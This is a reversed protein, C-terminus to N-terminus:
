FTIQGSRILGQLDLFSDLLNLKQLSLHYWETQPYNEVILILLHSARYLPSLRSDREHPSVSFFESFAKDINRSAESYAVHIKSGRVSLPVDPDFTQIDALFCRGFNLFLDWSTEGDNRNDLEDLAKQMMKVARRYHLRWVGDQRITRKTLGYDFYTHVGEFFVTTAKGFFVVDGKKEQNHKKTKEQSPPVTKKPVGRTELHEMLIEYCENIDTMRGHCWDAFDRNRDPHYKKVLGKYRADLEQRSYKNGNLRYILLASTLEMLYQLLYSQCPGYGSKSKPYIFIPM